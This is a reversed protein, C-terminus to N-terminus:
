ETVSWARSMFGSGVQGTCPRERRPCRLLQTPGTSTLATVSVYGAEVAHTDTADPGDYPGHTEFSVTYRDDGVPNLAPSHLSYPIRNSLVAEVTGKVQGIEINPVNVSLLAREVGVAPLRIM